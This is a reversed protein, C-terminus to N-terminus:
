MRAAYISHKCSEPFNVKYSLNFFIKGGDGMNACDGFLRLKCISELM